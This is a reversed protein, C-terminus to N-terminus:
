RREPTNCGEPITKEYLSDFIAAIKPSPDLSGTTVNMANEKQQEEKVEQDTPRRLAVTIAHPGGYAFKLEDKSRLERVAAELKFYM